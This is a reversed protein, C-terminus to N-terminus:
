PHKRHRARERSRGVTSRFPSSGILIFNPPIQTIWQCPVALLRLVLAWDATPKMSNSRALSRGVIMITRVAVNKANPNKVANVRPERSTPLILPSSHSPIMTTAKMRQTLTAPIFATTVLFPIAYGPAAPSLPGRGHHLSVARPRRAQARMHDLRAGSVKIVNPMFFTVIFRFRFCIKCSKMFPCFTVLPTILEIMLLSGLFSILSARM